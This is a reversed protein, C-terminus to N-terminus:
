MTFTLQSIHKNIRSDSHWCGFSVFRSQVIFFRFILILVTDVFILLENEEKFGLEFNRPYWLSYKFVLLMKAISSISKFIVHSVHLSFFIMLNFISLAQKLEFVSLCVVVYVLRFFSSCEKFIQEWCQDKLREFEAVRDIIFGIWRGYFGWAVYFCSIGYHFQLITEFWNCIRILKTSM